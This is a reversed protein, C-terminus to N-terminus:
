PDPSMSMVSAVHVVGSCGHVAIDFAYKAAMDPIVATTYRGAGYKNRFYKATWVAKDADRVTGRVRYGRELLQDVIHLGQWSNAGIVLVLSDNPLAPKEPETMSQFHQSYNPPPSPLQKYSNSSAESATRSPRTFPYPPPDHPPAGFVAKLTAEQRSMREMFRPPMKFDATVLRKLQQTRSPKQTPPLYEAWLLLLWLKPAINLNDLM